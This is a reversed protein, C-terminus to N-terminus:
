RHPSSRVWMRVPTRRRSISRPIPLRKGSALILAQAVITVAASIARDDAALHNDHFDKQALPGCSSCRAAPGSGQQEHAPRPLNAPRRRRAIHLPMRKRAAVKARHQDHQEEARQTQLWIPM